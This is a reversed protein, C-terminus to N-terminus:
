VLAAREVRAARVQTTTCVTEPRLCTPCCMSPTTVAMDTAGCASLAAVCNKLSDPPCRQGVTTPPTAAGPRLPCLFSSLVRMHCIYCDVLIRAFASLRQFTSNWCKTQLVHYFAKARAQEVCNKQEQYKLHIMIRFYEAKTQNDAGLDCASASVCVCACMGTNGTFRCSTCCSTRNFAPTESAGCARLSGTSPNMMARCAAKVAPHTHPHPWCSARVFYLNLCCNWMNNQFFQYFYRSVVTQQSTTSFASHNQCM